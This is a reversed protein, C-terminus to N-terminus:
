SSEKQKPHLSVQIKRRGLDLIRYMDHCDSSQNIAEEASPILNTINKDAHYLFVLIDGDKRSEICDLHCHLEAQLFEGTKSGISATQTQMDERLQQQYLDYRRANRVKSQQVLQFLSLILLICSGMWWPVNVPLAGILILHILIAILSADLFDAAVNLCMSRDTFFGTCGALVLMVACVSLYDRGIISQHFAVYSFLVLGVILQVARLCHYFKMFRNEASSDKQPWLLVDTEAALSQAGKTFVTNTMVAAQDCGYFAAGAYAEQVSSNGVPTDYFKCQIGYKRHHKYAIIDIGQDGTAKTLEIQHFGHKGLYSACWKEYDTGSTMRKMGFIM